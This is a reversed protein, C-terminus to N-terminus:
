WHANMHLSCGRHALDTVSVEKEVQPSVNLGTKSQSNREGVGQAVAVTARRDPESNGLLQIGLRSKQKPRRAGTQVGFYTKITERMSKIKNV